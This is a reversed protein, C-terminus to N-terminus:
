DQKNLKVLYSRLITKLNEIPIDRLMSVQALAMKIDNGNNNYASIFDTKYNYYDSTKM